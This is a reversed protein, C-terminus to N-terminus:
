TRPRFHFYVGICTLALLLFVVSFVVFIVTFFRSEGLKRSVGGKPLGFRAWFTEEFDLMRVWLDRRRILVYSFAGSLAAAGLCIWFLRLIHHLAENM